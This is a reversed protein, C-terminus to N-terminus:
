NSGGKSEFYKKIIDDCQLQSHSDKVFSGIEELDEKSPYRISKLDTVNVQTSGSFTRFYYDVLYSNLYISLGKAFNLNDLGSKNIHYYNVKNDFGIKPYNIKTNDLVCAVIRKKEEKTTMRKVLVYIGAPRLRSYNLEDEVIFIPKNIDLPWDLMSRKINEQYIMPYAMKLDNYILNQPNERFDVIPGTSVNIGLDELKCPLRHMIDVVEKDTTHIIRILKNKDNPFIVNDFRKYTTKIDSFDRELSETILVKDNFKQKDKLFSLILTEQLIDDYFVDKRSKFLHIQILKTEILLDERFSKFYAGNCFSRPIIGVLQGRSKLMRKAMSIFAAYYNSVDLGFNLLKRNHKTNKNIKKYPPNMIVFDFQNELYEFNNIGDTIFDLFRLECKLDISENKCYKKLVDLTEILKNSLSKDVEYLYLVIIEPKTKWELIKLVFSVVLNGLGCGPDLIKIEKKRVEKFMSTMFDAIELPTFYQNYKEKNIIRKLDSTADISNMRINELIKKM